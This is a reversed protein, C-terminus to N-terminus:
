EDWDFASLVGEVTDAYGPVGILPLPQVDEPRNHWNIRELFEGFSVAGIPKPVPVFAEATQQALQIGQRREPLPPPVSPAVVEGVNDAVFAAAPAHLDDQEPKPAAPPAPAAKRGRRTVGGLLRRIADTEAFDALRRSKGRPKGADPQSDKPM